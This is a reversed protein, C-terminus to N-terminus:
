YIWLNPNEHLMYQWKAVRMELLRVIQPHCTRIAVLYGRWIQMQFTSLLFSNMGTNKRDFQKKLVQFKVSLYDIKKRWCRINM